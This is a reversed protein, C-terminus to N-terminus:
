LSVNGAGYAPREIVMAALGVDDNFWSQATPQFCKTVQM